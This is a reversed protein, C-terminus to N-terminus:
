LKETSARKTAKVMLPGALDSIGVSIMDPLVGKFAGKAAASREEEDALDFSFMKLLTSTVKYINTLAMTKGICQRHGLGFHM